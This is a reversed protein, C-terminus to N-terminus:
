CGSRCSQSMVFFRDGAPEEPLYGFDGFANQFYGTSGYLEVRESLEWGYIFDAGFQVRDTSWAEGGTPVTIGLELASEPLIGEGETMGLKVGLQLDEAGETNDAEDIFSWIYDARARLEIDESIGYRFLM